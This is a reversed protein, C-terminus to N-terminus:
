KNLREQKARNSQQNMMMMMMMMTTTAKMLKTTAWGVALCSLGCNRVWYETSRIRSGPYIVGIYSINQFLEGEKWLAGVVFFCGMM